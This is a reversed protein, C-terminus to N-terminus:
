QSASRTRPMGTEDFGEIVTILRSAGEYIKKAASAANACADRRQRLMKYEIGRTGGEIHAQADTWHDFYSQLQLFWRYITPAEDITRSLRDIREKQTETDPPTYPQMLADLAEVFDEYEMTRATSVTLRQPLAMVKEASGARRCDGIADPRGVARETRGPYGGLDGSCGARAVWGVIRTHTEYRRSTKQTLM